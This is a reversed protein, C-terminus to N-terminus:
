GLIRKEKSMRDWKGTCFIAYADAAYKGIGHLQTVHTWDEWLYEQSFRQIMLARKKQLGLTQIIKEIEEPAVETATKADPCLTFLESIVRRAQTGSTRNLLMCIVLVRWPDHYHDEQLLGHESRPPKWTNDLSKREYAEDFKQYDCSDPKQFYPSVKIRKVKLKSAKCGNMFYPSVKRVEVERAIKLCSNGVQEEGLGEYIPPLSDELCAKKENEKKELPKIERNTIGQYILQSLVDEPSPADGFNSETKVVTEEATRRRRSREARRKGCWDGCLVNTNIRKEQSNDFVSCFGDGTVFNVDKGDIVSKTKKRKNTEAASSSPQIQFFRSVVRAKRRKRKTAPSSSAEYERERRNQKRKTSKKAYKPLDEESDEM